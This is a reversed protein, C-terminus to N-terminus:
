SREPSALRNRRGPHRGGPRHGAAAEDVRNKTAPQWRTRPITPPPVIPWSKRPWRRRDTDVARRDSQFPKWAQDKCSIHQDDLEERYAHKHSVPQGDTDHSQRPHKARPRPSLPHRFPLRGRHCCARLRRLTTRNRHPPRTIGRRCVPKALITVPYLGLPRHCFCPPRLPYPWPTRLACRVEGIIHCRAFVKRGSLTKGQRYQRSKVPYYRCSIAPNQQGAPSFAHRAM